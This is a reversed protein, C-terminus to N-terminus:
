KGSGAMRSHVHLELGQQELLSHREFHAACVGFNQNDAEEVLFSNDQIGPQAAPIPNQGLGNLGLLVTAALVFCGPSVLRGSPTGHM